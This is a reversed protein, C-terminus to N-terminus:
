LSEVEDESPQSESPDHVEFSPSSPAEANLAELDESSFDPEGEGFTTAGGEDFMAIPITFSATTMTQTSLPPAQFVTVNSVPASSVTGSSLVEPTTTLISVLAPTTEEGVPLRFTTGDTCQFLLFHQVQKTEFNIEEASGKLFAKM